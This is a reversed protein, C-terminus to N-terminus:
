NWDAKSINVTGEGYGHLWSQRPVKKELNKDTFGNRTPNWSPKRARPIGLQLHERCGPFSTYTPPTKCLGRHPHVLPSSFAGALWPQLASDTAPGPLLSKLKTVTHEAAEPLKPSLFLHITMKSMHSFHSNNNQTEIGLFSQIWHKPSTMARQNFCLLFNWSKTYSWFVNIVTHISWSKQDTQTQWLSSLLLNFIRSGNLLSISYQATTQVVM